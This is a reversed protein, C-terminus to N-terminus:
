NNTASSKLERIRAKIQPLTPNNRERALRAALRLQAIAETRQGRLWRAQADARHAAIPRGLRNYTRALLEHGSARGPYDRTVEELLVRARDPQSTALYAQGIEERLAPDNPHRELAAQFSAIAEEARNNQLLFEGLTRRYAVM